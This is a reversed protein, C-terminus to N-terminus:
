SCNNRVHINAFRDAMWAVAAAQGGPSNGGVAFRVSADRGALARAAWGFDIVARAESGGVLYPNPFETGLDSYGMVAVIFGHAVRDRLGHM